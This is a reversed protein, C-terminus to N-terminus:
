SEMDKEIGEEIIDVISQIMMNIDSQLALYDSMLPYNEIDDLQDDYQKQFQKIAETKEIQKANVLQKQLNKLQNIKKKLEKHENIMTEIRKYRKIEPDSALMSILKEKETMDTRGNFVM